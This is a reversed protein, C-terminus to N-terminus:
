QLNDLIAGKANCASIQEKSLGSAGNMDTDQLSNAAEPNAGQLNANRLNAGQLYAGRFNVGELNAGELIASTLRAGELNARPLHAQILRAGELRAGELHTKELNAKTLYAWQLNAGLLYAQILRAGELHARILNVGELNARTLNAEKLDAEELNAEMLKAELYAKRLFAQQLWGERLDAGALYANDLHIGSANLSQPDFPNSQIKLEDRVLPFAEKFVSILAQDLSGLPEPTDPDNKIFRLHAVSLEFIQCHFQKYEAQLFTRLTIAAGASTRMEQNGLAAVAAQFREEARKKQELREDEARMRQEDLRDQRWTYFSWFGALIALLITILPSFFTWVEWSNDIKLKDIEQALQEKQLATETPDVTSTAQMNVPLKKNQYPLTKGYAHAPVTVCWMLILSAAGIIPLIVRLALIFRKMHVVGKIRRM